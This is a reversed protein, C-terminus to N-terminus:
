PGLGALFTAAGVAAALALVQVAGLRGWALLAFAGLAIGLDLPGRATSRLLMASISAMLGVSGLVVGRTAGQVMPLHAVFRHAKLLGLVAVAPVCVGLTAVIAGPIGALFYGVPLVFLGNPGPTLRGIAIAWAIQTDTLLGRQRVFEDQLLPLSQSGGFSLFTVKVFILFLGLLDM